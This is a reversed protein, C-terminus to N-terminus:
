TLSEKKCTKRVQSSVYQPHNSKNEIYQITSLYFSLDNMKFDKKLRNDFEGEGRVRLIKIVFYVILVHKFSNTSVLKISSKLACREFFILIINNTQVSINVFCVINYNNQSM